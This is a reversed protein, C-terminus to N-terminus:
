TLAGKQRMVASPQLEDRERYAWAGAISGLAATVVTSLAGRVFAGTSMLGMTTFGGVVATAVLWLPAAALLATTVGPGFRPRIAAYNWVVAFGIVFDVLIWPVGASFSTAAAPDMGLKQAVGLMDDKLVVFNWFMDCVNLVVGALLGGILVRRSDISAM